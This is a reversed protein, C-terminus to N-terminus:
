FVSTTSKKKAKKTAKTPKKAAKKKTAKKKAAATAAKKKAAEEKKKATAEKKKASAKKRAAIAKKKEAKKAKAEQEAKKLVSFDILEKVKSDSVAGILWQFILDVTANKTHAGLEHLRKIRRKDQGTHQRGPGKKGKAGTGDIISTAKEIQEKKPLKAIRQAATPSLKGEIVWEQIKPALLTLALWNKITQPVVRFATCVQEMTDGGDFMAKAKYGRTVFDSERRHENKVVMRRTLEAPTGKIARWEITLPPLDNEARIENAAIANTRRQRGDIIALCFKTNTKNFIKTVDVTEFIEELWVMGEVTDEDAEWFARKDFLFHKPDKIVTLLNPDIKEPVKTGKNFWIFETGAPM